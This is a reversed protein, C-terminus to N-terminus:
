KEKMKLKEKKVIKNMKLKTNSKLPSTKKKQYRFVTKSGQLINQKYMYFMCTDGILARLSVFSCVEYLFIILDRLLGMYPYM